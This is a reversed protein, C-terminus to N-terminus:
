DSHSPPNLMAADSGASFVLRGSPEFRATLASGIRPHLSDPGTLASTLRPGEELEM